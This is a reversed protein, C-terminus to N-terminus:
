GPEVPLSGAFYAGEMTVECVLSRKWCGLELTGVAEWLKCVALYLGNEGGSTEIGNLSITGAEILRCRYGRYDKLFGM